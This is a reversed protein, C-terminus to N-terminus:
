DFFDEKFKGEELYDAVEYWFDKTATSVEAIAYARDIAEQKNGDSEELLKEAMERSRGTLSLKALLWAIM